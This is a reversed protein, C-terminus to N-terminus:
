NVTQFGDTLSKAVSPDVGEYENTNLQFRDDDFSKHPSVKMKSFSVM